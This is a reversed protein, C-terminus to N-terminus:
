YNNGSTIQKIKDKLQKIDTIDRENALKVIDELMKKLQKKGKYLDILAKDKNEVMKRTLIFDESKKEVSARTEHCIFCHNVRDIEHKREEERLESFTGLIIGFVLDIMIIICILFYSLDYIIRILYLNTNREFSIRIMQDAAGGRARIGADFNTM